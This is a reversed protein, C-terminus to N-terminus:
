LLFAIIGSYDEPRVAPVASVATIVLSYRHRIQPYRRADTNLIRKKEKADTM